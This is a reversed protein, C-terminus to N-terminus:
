GLKLCVPLSELSCVNMRSLLKSLVCTFIRNWWRFFFYLSNFSSFSVPSQFVYLIVFELLCGIVKHFLITRNKKLAVYVHKSNLAICRVASMEDCRKIPNDHLGSFIAYSLLLRSETMFFPPLSPSLSFIFKRLYIWYQISSIDLVILYWCIFRIIKLEFIPQQSM